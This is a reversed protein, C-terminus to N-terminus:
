KVRRLKDIQENTKNHQQTAYKGVRTLAEDPGAQKLYVRLDRSAKELPHNEMMGQIGVCKESLEITNLCIESTVLRMMNSFNSRFENEYIEFGNAQLDEARSLWLSATEQLIALQGLRMKQYPDSTRNYKTLHAMAVESVTKAGGLQVASFRVAGWSFYPERYYDDAKGLLQDKDVKIGSFDLRCSTSAKMGMPNWLSWDEKIKRMQQNNLVLMQTGEATRATILPREINLAGSCFTKAGKLILGESDKILQLGEFPRETNWVGFVKDDFADRFLHEKQSTSGYIEILLLANLHGEYIRGVSLDGRGVEFLLQLMRLKESKVSKVSSFETPITATMLGKEKLLSIASAPFKRSDDSLQNFIEKHRKAKFM